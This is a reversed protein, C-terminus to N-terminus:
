EANTLWARLEKIIEKTTGHGMGLGQRIAKDESGIANYAAYVCPPPCTTDSLGVAVRVPVKILRAFNAADYYALNAEANKKDAAAKMREIPLPWGSQHGNRYGAVDTIAPVLYVAKRIAPNLATLAIGMGGGQSGGWYWIRSADVEPLKSAWTIARDIGLIADHFFYEERNRAVGAVAYDGGGYKKACKSNQAAYLKEQGKRDYAPEYPHVNLVLSVRDAYRESKTGLEAMAPGAGPVTILLPLPKQKAAQPVILFGWVRKEGVGAFSLKYTEFGDTCFADLRTKKADLPKQALRAQEGKWYTAFDPPYAIGATIREPAFGVSRCVNGRGISWMAGKPPPVCWATLRLFGPKDLSGSIKLTPEEAPKWERKLISAGGFHDMELRVIGGRAAANTACDKATLTFTATEGLAYRADPHDEVITVKFPEACALGAALVGLGLIQKKM